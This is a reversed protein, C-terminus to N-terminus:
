NGETPPAAAARRMVLYGGADGTVTFGAHQYIRLAAHNEGWVTLTLPRGEAILLALVSAAIGRRRHEPAVVLDILHTEPGSRDVMAAGLPGASATEDDAAARAGAEDGAARADDDDGPVVSPGRGAIVLSEAHPYRRAYDQQRADWQLELLPAPLALEAARDALFWARLMREDGATAPRLTIRLEATASM